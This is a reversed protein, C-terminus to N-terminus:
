SYKQKLIDYIEALQEESYPSQNSDMLKKLKKPTPIKTLTDIFIYDDRYKAQIPPQLVLNNNSNDNIDPNKHGLQWEKNEVDLYNAKIHSKINEIETNKSEITGDWEFNKRMKFKNTIQYPYKIYYKGREKSSEIGLQSKKNFLQISDDTNINFKKCFQECETRTWYYDRYELMVALCIGNNSKINPLKIASINQKYFNLFAKPYCIPLKTILDVNIKNM